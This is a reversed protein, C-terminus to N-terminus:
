NAADYGTGAASPRPHFYKEGTFSQALLESGRLTGDPDVILSGNAKEHFVLQAGAWVVVPYVGCLLLALVVTALVSIKLEHLITKMAFPECWTCPTLSSM